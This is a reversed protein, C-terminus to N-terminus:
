RSFFLAEQAELSRYGGSVAKLKVGDKLADDYMLNFAFAPGGAYVSSAWATGGASLKGLASAPIKGNGYISLTAPVKQAKYPHGM